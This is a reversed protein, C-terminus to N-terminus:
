FTSKAITPAPGAPIEAATYAADSPSEVTTSSRSPGPPYTLPDDRMSFKIPNGAPNDPASKAVRPTKCISFNPARITAGTSTVFTSIAVTAPSRCASRSSQPAFIRAPTIKIAM